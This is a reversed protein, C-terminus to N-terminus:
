GRRLWTVCDNRDIDVIQDHHLCGICRQNSGLVSFFTDAFRDFRQFCPFQVVLKYSVPSAPRSQGEDIPVNAVLSM